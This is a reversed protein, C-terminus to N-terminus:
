TLTTYPPGNAFPLRHDVRQPLRATQAHGSGDGQREARLQLTFSDDPLMAPAMTCCQGLCTCCSHDSREPAKSTADRVSQDAVPGHQHVVAPGAVDPTVPSAVPASIGSHKPCAFLGAPETLATAFWIAWLSIM